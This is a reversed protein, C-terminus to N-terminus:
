VAVKLKGKVYEKYLNKIIGDSLGIKPVFIKKIGAWRMILMHIETAPVIVDARDPRLGLEKIRDSITYATLTEHAHKIMDFTIFNGKTNGYLKQIKNINGGSGIGFIQGYKDKFGKLTERLNLWVSEEVQDNLIKLTGISYSKSKVLKGKVFLSIETSGGGVDIYLYNMDPEELSKVVDNSNIVSAELDGDIIDIKVGTKKFVEKVIDDGNEAERLAATACIRYDLADNVEILNKFASMTKILKDVKKRSITKDMFADEGLRLPVRILFDKKYVPEGDVLYVNMFLLRVANSGIDIAAFKLNL